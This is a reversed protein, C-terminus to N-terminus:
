FFLLLVFSQSIAFLVNFNFLLQWVNLSSWSYWRCDSWCVIVNVRVAIALPLRSPSFINKPPVIQTINIYRDTPHRAAWRNPIICGMLQTDHQRNTPYLAERWNPIISGRLQTYRQRNSPYLATWWNPKVNGMLQTGNNPYLATDHQGGTPYLAAWWNPIVSGM